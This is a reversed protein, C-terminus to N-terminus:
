RMRTMNDITVVLANMEGLKFLESFFVGALGIFLIGAFGICTKLIEKMVVTHCWTDKELLNVDATM